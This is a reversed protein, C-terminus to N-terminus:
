AISCCDCKKRDDISKTLLMDTQNMYENENKLTTKIKLSMLRVSDGGGSFLFKAKHNIPLYFNGKINNFHNKNNLSINAQLFENGFDRIHINLECLDNELYYYNNDDQMFDVLQRKLFFKYFVKGTKKSECFTGFSVFVKNSNVTKSIMILNSFKNFINIDNDNAEFINENNDINVFSRTSIYCQSEGILNINLNVELNSMSYDNYYKTRLAIKSFEIGDSKDLIPSFLSWNSKIEPINNDESSNKTDANAIEFFYTDDLTYTLVKNFNSTYNRRFSRMKSLSNVNSNLESLKPFNRNKEINNSMNHINNNGNKNFQENDSSKNIHHRKFINESILINDSNNDNKISYLRKKIRENKLFNDSPPQYLQEKKKFTKIAEKNNLRKNKGFKSIKSKAKMKQIELKQTIFIDESPAETIQNKNAIESIDLDKIKDINGDIEFYSDDKHEDSEM